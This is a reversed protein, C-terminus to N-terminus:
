LFVLGREGEPNNKERKRTFPIMWVRKTSVPWRAGTSIGKRFRALSNNLTLFGIKSIIIM